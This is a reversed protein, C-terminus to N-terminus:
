QRYSGFSQSIGLCHKSANGLAQKIFLLCYAVAKAGRRTVNLGCNGRFRKREKHTHDFQFLKFFKSGLLLNIVFFL